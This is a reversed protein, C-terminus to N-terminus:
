LPNLAEKYSGALLSEVQPIDHFTPVRSSVRYNRLVIAFHSAGEWM